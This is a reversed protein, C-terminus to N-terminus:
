SKRFEGLQEKSNVVLEKDVLLDGGVLRRNGRDYEIM